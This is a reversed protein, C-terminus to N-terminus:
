CSVLGCFLFDSMSFLVEAAVASEVGANGGGVGGGLMRAFYGWYRPTQWARGLPKGVGGDGMLVLFYVRMIGAVRQVYDGQTEWGDASDRYGMAKRLAAEDFPTAAGVDARPISTPVGWGGVRQVLKAFLVDEFHPLTGLLNKTVQALPIAAAKTATVETEAQLLIAKALSSLLPLYIEEPHPNAPM